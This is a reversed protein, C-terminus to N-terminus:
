AVAGHVSLWIPLLEIFDKATNDIVRDVGRPYHCPSFSSRRSTPLQVIIGTSPGALGQQSYVPPEVFLIPFSLEAKSFASV